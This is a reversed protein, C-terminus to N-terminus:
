AALAGEPLGLEREANITAWALMDSRDVITQHAVVQLALGDVVSLIRWAAGTPDECRFIGDRVGDRIARELLAAWALNLRSSAERLM